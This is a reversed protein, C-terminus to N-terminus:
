QTWYPWRTKKLKLTSFPWYTSLLKGVRNSEATFKGSPPSTQYPPRKAPASTAHHIQRVRFIGNKCNSLMWVAVLWKDAPIPSDEMVTGVKASFQRHKHVSKCQWKRQNTLYVVDRRGCFPCYVDGDPWRLRKMYELTNDPDSFFLIADQLTKPKQQNSDM